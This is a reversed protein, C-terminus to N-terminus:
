NTSYFVGISNNMAGFFRSPGALLSNVTATLGSGLTVVTFSVGDRSTLLRVGSTTTSGVVFMGHGYAVSWWTRVVPATQATWTDGDVSTLLAGSDGVALFQGAGFAVDRFTYSSLDTSPSTWTTGDDTSYAARNGGAGVVVWRGNGYALANSGMDPADTRTTWSVGDPSTQVQNNGANNAVLMFLGNAYHVDTWNIGGLGCTVWNVGDTSRMVRNTGLGASGVFVGNGFALDDFGTNNPVPTSSSVWTIGDTSTLIRSVGSFGGSAAVYIGNGYALSGKSSFSAPATTASVWTTAQCNPGPVPGAAPINTIVGVYPAPISSTPIEAAASVNLDMPCTQAWGPGALGLLFAGVCWGLWVSRMTENQRTPQGADPGRGATQASNQLGAFAYIHKETQRPGAPGTAELGLGVPARAAKVRGAGPVANQSDDRVALDPREAWDHFRLDLKVVSKPSARQFSRAAASRPM